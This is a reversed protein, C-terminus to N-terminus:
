RTCPWAKTMAERALKLFPEHLRQPNQELFQITVRTMQGVTVGQRGCIVPSSFYLAEVTGSCVGQMFPNNADGRVISSKCPQLMYNGTSQDVQAFAPQAFACLFVALSLARMPLEHYM